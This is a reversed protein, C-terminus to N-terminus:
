DELAERIPDNALPSIIQLEQLGRFLEQGANATMARIETARPHDTHKLLRVADALLALPELLLREAAGFPIDVTHGAHPLATLFEEGAGETFLSSLDEAPPPTALPTTFAPAGGATYEIGRELQRLARAVAQYLPTDNMDKDSSVGYDERSTGYFMPDTTAYNVFMVAIFKQFVNKDFGSKNRYNEDDRVSQLVDEFLRGIFQRPVLADTEPGRHHSLFEFRYLPEPMGGTVSADAESVSEFVDVKMMNDLNRRPAGRTTMHLLRDKFEQLDTGLFHAQGSIIRDRLEELRRVLNGRADDIIAMMEKRLDADDPFVDITEFTTRIVAFDNLGDELCPYAIGLPVNPPFEEIADANRYGSEPEVLTYFRNNTRLSKLLVVQRNDVAISM